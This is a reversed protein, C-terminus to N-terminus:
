GAARVETAAECKDAVDEDSSTFQTLAIFGGVVLVVFATTVTGLYKEIFRKIPAGFIRFLIGVIM